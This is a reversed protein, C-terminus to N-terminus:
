RRTIRARFLRSSDESSIVEVPAATADTAGSARLNWTSDPDLGTSEELVWERNPAVQFAIRYGGAEVRSVILRFASSASTPDTGAVFESRNDIGDGDRDETADAPNMRDFGYLLEWDDDMGDGDTDLTISVQARIGSFNGRVSPSGPNFVLVPRSNANTATFTFSVSAVGGSVIDGFEGTFAFPQSEDLRNTGPSSTISVDTANEVSATFGALPATGVGTNTVALTATFPIGVPVIIPQALRNVVLRYLVKGSGGAIYLMSPPVNFRLLSWEDMSGYFTRGERDAGFVLPESEGIGVISEMPGSVAILGDLHIAAISSSASEVFALHHWGSDAIARGQASTSLGSVIAGNRVVIIEPRGNVLNIQWGENAGRRGVLPVTGSASAPAVRVWGEIIRYSHNTSWSIAPSSEVRVGGPSGDFIWGSGIRGNGRSAGTLVAQAGAPASQNTIAGDEVLDSTWWAMIHPTVDLMQFTVEVESVAVDNLPDRDPVASSIRAENVIFRPGTSPSVSPMRQRFVLTRNTGAALDGATWRLVIASNSFGVTALEGPFTIATASTIARDILITAQVNTATSPGPNTVSLTYTAFGGNTVVALNPVLTVALNDPVDVTIPRSVGTNGNGDDAYLAFIATPLDVAFETSAVGNVFDLILSPSIALSAADAFPLALGINTRGLSGFQVGTLTTWDAASNGDFSGRRTAGTTISRNFSISPGTWESEPLILPIAIQSAEAGDLGAFDVVGGSADQILVAMPDPASSAVNDRWTLSVGLRLTPFANPSGSGEVLTFVGGPPVVTGQPMTFTTKPLPWRSGDFFSIRWGSVNLANTTVNQFEAADNGQWSFESVVLSAPKFGPAYAGVTVAASFDTVTAGFGDIATLTAGIVSLPPLRNTPIGDWRFGAIQGAAADDNIIVALINTAFLTANTANSMNVFFVENPEVTRDGLVTINFYSELQGPQVTVVGNTELFDSGARATDNQTAFRATIAGESRGSLRVNFRMETRGSNGEAIRAPDVTFLPVPENDAISVVASETEIVGGAPNFLFVRLDEPGEAVVDDLLRIFVTQEVVGPPFEVVGNTGIYDFETRASIDATAFEVTVNRSTATSLRVTFSVSGATESVPESPGAISITLPRSVIDQGAVNNALALDTEARTVAASVHNTGSSPALLTVALAANTGGALTGVDWILRGPGDSPISVGAANTAGIFELGGFLNTVRVSTAASAGRNSVRIVQSFAEGTVTTEPATMTLVIDEACRGAPGYGYITAIETAGLVRDYISLEDLSGFFPYARSPSLAGIGWASSYGLTEIFSASGAPQGDIYFVVTGASKTVAVHHWLTDTIASSASQVPTGGARGFVLAGERTISFNPGDAGVGAITAVEVPSTLTVDMASGRRLWTEVTFQQLKLSELEPLSFGSSQGNFSAATGVRGSVYDPPNGSIPLASLREVAGDDGSFWAMLGSPSPGCPGDIQIRSIFQNNASSTDGSRVTMTSINTLMRSDSPALFRLMAGTTRAAPANTLNWVVFGGAEALSGASPHGGLWRAGAPIANSVLIDSAPSRDLNRVSLAVDYEAGAPVTEPATVDLVLDGVCKGFHDARYLGMVEGESLPRDYLSLEDIDGLFGYRNEGFPTGFGGIGFSTEFTAERSYNATQVLQGDVFFRVVGANRGIVVHHWELDQIKYSSSDVADNAQIAFYLRGDNFMGVGYNGGGGSFFAGAIQGVAARNTESRRIWAEITPNQTRWAARSGAVVVSSGGNAVIGVGVKGRTFVPNGLLEGETGTIEDLGNGELRWWGVLGSPRAVCPGVVSFNVSATGYAITNTANQIQFLEATARFLDSLGTPSATIRATTTGSPPINGVYWLLGEATNSFSGSAPLTRDVHFDSSTPVKVFLNSVTEPKLNAVEIEFDGNEGIDITPRSTRLSIAAVCGPRSSLTFVTSVEAASLPRDFFTVEDIDGLFSYTENVPSTPFVTGLRGIGVPGTFTFQYPVTVEGSPSGDTYYRILSGNKVAVIHHWDLDPIQPRQNAPPSNIGVHGIFIGGRSDITLTYGLNGWAFIAGDPISSQSSRNQEARKVWAGITFDSVAFPASNSIVLGDQFAGGIHYGDGVRGVGITTQGSLTATHNNVVSDLGGRWWAVLGPISEICVSEQCYATCASALGSFALLASLWRKM